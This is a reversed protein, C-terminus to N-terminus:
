KFIRMSCQITLPVRPFGGFKLNTKNTWKNEEPDYSDIRINQARFDGTNSLGYLTGSVVLLTGLRGIFFSKIFQWENTTEDYVEYLKGTPWHGQFIGGAIYIKSNAAAAHPWKRARQISAM